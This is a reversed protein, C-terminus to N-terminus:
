NLVSATMLLIKSIIQNPCVANRWILGILHECRSWIWIDADPLASQRETLTLPQCMIVFGTETPPQQNTAIRLQYHPSKFCM